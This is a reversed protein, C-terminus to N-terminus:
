EMSRGLFTSQQLQNGIFVPLSPLPVETKSTEVAATETVPAQATMIQIQDEDTGTEKSAKAEISALGAIMSLCLISCIWKKMKNM